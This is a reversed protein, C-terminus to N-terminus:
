DARRKYGLSSGTIPAILAALIVTYLTIQAGYILRSLINRGLFGAGPQHGDTRFPALRNGLDQVFSNHATLQSAFISVPEMMVLIMLGFTAM